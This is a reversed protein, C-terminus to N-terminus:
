IHILSLEQAEQAEHSEATQAGGEMQAAAAQAGAERVEENQKELEM